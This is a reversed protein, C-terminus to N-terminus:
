KGTAPLQLLRLARRVKSLRLRIDVSAPDRELARVLV